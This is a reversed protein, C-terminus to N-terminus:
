SLSLCQLHKRYDHSIDTEEMPKEKKHLFEYEDIVLYWIHQNHHIWGLISLM